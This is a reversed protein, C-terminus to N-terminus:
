PLDPEPPCGSARARAGSRGGAPKAAVAAAAPSAAGSGAAAGDVRRVRRRTRRAEQAAIERALALADNRERVAGDLFAARIRALAVGVAPGSLGAALLDHGGVPARRGRDERAWREIRRREAPPALSWLALLSEEDLRALVADVAGRGRARSLERARRVRERPLAAVRAAADGRVSLRRLTRRRVTADTADLWVALGAVWPRTRGLLWPPEAVARGIRRLPAVAAPPLALGPELAGLVHWEDLLRLAAAPDLGLAADAFLKELERRFRDGSVAGFAGDRLADRLATRSARALRFGLRPALRAARLARTPDDHFSRPHFVRLTRAELDALAGGPDLLAPRGRRAPRNLALALANVTFDRRRLDEEVTGPEVVPLAGPRPYRERRAAALDIAAEADALRVTGFRDHGVVRAGPPAAARALSEVGGEGHLEVLLDVDRLPRRLLLDRVPGGVLWVPVSRREAEATVADVLARAAAPLARRVAEPAPASM